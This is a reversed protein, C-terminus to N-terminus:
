NADRRDMARNLRDKAAMTFPHAQEVVDHLYHDKLQPSVNSRKDIVHLKEGVDSEMVKDYKKLIKRFGSHNLEVYSKLSALSLYLNTIRRKFLLQVDMAYNNRATWVTEPAQITSSVSDKAFIKSALTRASRIPSRSTSQGRGSGQPITLQALQPQASAEAHAASRLSAISAELDAHDENSSLSYRRNHRTDPRRSGSPVYGNTDSASRRRRSSMPSRSWTAEPSQPVFDDDEDEDEDDGYEERDYQHGVDPGFNEQEEILKELETVENLLEEEQSEYFLGVKKLERDLLPIFLADTSVHDTSRILSTNENAELDHITDHFGAQQKELQYVYKKLTDYAIYEDWWEAVANFKLSSSFKMAFARLDVPSPGSQGLPRLPIAESSAINGACGRVCRASQLRMNQAIPTETDTIYASPRRPASADASSVVDNEYAPAKGARSKCDM